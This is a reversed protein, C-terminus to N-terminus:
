NDQVYQKKEPKFYKVGLITAPGNDEGLPFFGWPKPGGHVSILVVDKHDRELVAEVLRDSPVEHTGGDMGKPYDPNAGKRLMRILIKDATGGVHVLLKGGREFDSMKELTLWGSDTEPSTGTEGQVTESFVVQSTSFLFLAIFTRILVIM